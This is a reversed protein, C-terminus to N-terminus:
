AEYAALAGGYSTYSVYAGILPAYRLRVSTCAPSSAEGYSSRVITCADYLRRVDHSGRVVLPESPLYLGFKALPPFFKFSSVPLTTTSGGGM